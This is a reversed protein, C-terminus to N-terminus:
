ARPTSARAKAEAGDQLLPLRRDDFHLGAPGIPEKAVPFSPSISTLRPEHPAEAIMLRRLM